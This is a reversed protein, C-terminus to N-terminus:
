LDEIRLEWDKRLYADGTVGGNDPLQTDSLGISDRVRLTCRAALGNRIPHCWPHCRHGRGQRVLVKQQGGRPGETGPRAAGARLAPVIVTVISRRPAARPLPCRVGSRPVTSARTRSRPTLQM